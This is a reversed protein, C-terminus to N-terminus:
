VKELIAEINLANEVVKSFNEIRNNFDSFRIKVGLYRSLANVVCENWFLAHTYTGWVLGSESECGEFKENAKSAGEDLGSLNEFVYKGSVRTVGKHIEYGRVTGKVDKVIEASGIARREVQYCSKRYLRFETETNLLGLGKVRLRGHEVGHDVLEKGLMQYGGCIGIVVNNKSFRKIKEDMGSDKIAKLDLLTDKSGPIVLVGLGDLEDKLSVFRSVDRIPEFDTFNSIKSLKLIGVVKEDGGDSWEDICLSDESVVSETYPIIGLVKVGTLEELKRIGSELIDARGRLRNIVFGMVLERVDPPLLLYTGYLSAFVGGRDIDATVIIAPKAMRAMGINALDRDYLNIEAIGGAGEILILDYEDSLERYAKEVVKRLRDIMSYYQRSSVDGVVEGLVVLQSVFNGKPKLLIPNMREDPEIGAARAQIAQAIAIEKGERTVYSNLSMNQAKFPAVRYGMKSLIRCLATTLATKGANSTTGAIMISKKEKKAGKGEVKM